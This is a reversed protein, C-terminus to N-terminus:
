VALIDKGAVRRRREEQVMLLEEEEKRQGVATRGWDAVPAQPPTDTEETQVV